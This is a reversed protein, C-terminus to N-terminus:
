KIEITKVIYIIGEVRGLSYILEERESINQTNSIETKIEKVRKKLHKIFQSNQHEM